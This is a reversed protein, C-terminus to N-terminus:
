TSKKTDENYKICAQMIEKILAKDLPQKMPLHIASKTTKYQTLRDRFMDMIIPGPYFGVYGRCQGFQFLSGHYMMTPLGWSIKESAQPILEYTTTRIWELRKIYEIDCQAYYEEITTYSVKSM